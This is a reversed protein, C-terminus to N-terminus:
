ISFITNPELEKIDTPFANRLSNLNKNFSDKFCFVHLEQIDNTNNGPLAIRFNFASDLTLADSFNSGIYYYIKFKKDFNISSRTDYYKPFIM